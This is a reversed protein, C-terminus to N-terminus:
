VSLLLESVFPCLTLLLNVRPLRFSSTQDQILFSCSRHIYVGGAMARNSKIHLKSAGLQLSM